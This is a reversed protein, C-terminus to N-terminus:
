QELERKTSDQQKSFTHGDLRCTECCLHGGFVLFKHPEDDHVKHELNFRIVIPRCTVTSNITREILLLTM